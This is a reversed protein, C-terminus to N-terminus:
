ERLNTHRWNDQGGGKIAHRICDQSEGKGARRGAKLFTIRGKFGDTDRLSVRSDALTDASAKADVDRLTDGPTSIQMEAQSQHMTNVFAKTDM